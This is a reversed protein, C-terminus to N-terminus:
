ASPIGHGCGELTILRADDIAAAVAPGRDSGVVEDATGQIVVTPCRVKSCLELARDYDNEWIQM